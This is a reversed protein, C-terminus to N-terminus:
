GEDELIESCLKVCEDCICTDDPAKILRKAKDKTKDCFSCFETGSAKYEAVKKVMAELKHLEVLHEAYRIAFRQSVPDLQNFLGLMEERRKTKELKQRPM